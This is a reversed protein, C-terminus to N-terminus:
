YAYGGVISIQKISDAAGNAGATGDNKFTWTYQTLAGEVRVGVSGFSINLGAAARVGNATAGQPFRAELAGGSLVNRFDASIYPEISGLLLSGRAGVRMSQYDVDPVLMIDGKDGSFTYADKVYGAGVEFTATDAIVWRQRLSAEFAQWYTNAQTPTGDKRKVPQSNLGQQFRALVALGRLSKVGALTGPWFEVVPGAIFQGVENESTLNPNNPDAGDYSFDRFGVTVAVSVAIISDTRPPSPDPKERIAPKDGTPQDEIPPDDPKSAVNKTSGTVKVDDGAVVEVAQGYINRGALTMAVAHTGAEIEIELPAKGKDEDDIIVNAGRPGEIIIKGVAAVLTYTRKFPAKDKKTIAIQEVVPKHGKLDIILLQDGDVDISCPTKCLEGDEVAGLYVSAGPPTSVIQVKKKGAVATGATALIALAAALLVRGM